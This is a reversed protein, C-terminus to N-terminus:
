FNENIHTLCEAKTAGRKVMAVLTEDELLLDLMVTSEGSLIRMKYANSMTEWM